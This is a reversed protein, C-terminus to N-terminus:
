QTKELDAVPSSAPVLPVALQILDRAAVSLWRWLYDTLAREPLIDFRGGDDAKTIIVPVEEIRTRRSSGAPFARPSFDLSCGFALLESSGSGRVEICQFRDSVDIVACTAPGSEALPVLGELTMQWSGSAAILLWEDPRLWVCRLGGREAVINENPLCLGLQEQLAKQWEISSGRLLRKVLFPRESIVIAGVNLTAPKGHQWHRRLPSTRSLEVM